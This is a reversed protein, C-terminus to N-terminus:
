RKNPIHKRNAVMAFASSQLGPSSPQVQSISHGTSVQTGVSLHLTPSVPQSHTFSHSGAVVQVVASFPIVQSAVVSGAPVQAHTIVSGTAVGAASQVVGLLASQVQVSIHTPLITQSAPSAHEEGSGSPTQVSQLLLQVGLVHVLSPSVQVSGAVSAFQLHVLPEAETVDDVMMLMM